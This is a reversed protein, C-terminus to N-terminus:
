SGMLNFFYHLAIAGMLGLLAKKKQTSFILIAYTSTHLASVLLLKKAFHATEATSSGFWFITESFAFCFGLIFALSLKHSFKSIKPSKAAILAKTVEEIIYPYPLAKEIFILFVPAVLSALSSLLLFAFM